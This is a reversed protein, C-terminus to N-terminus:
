LWRLKFLMADKPEEFWFAVVYLDPTPMTSWRKTSNEGCWAIAETYRNVYNIYSDRGVNKYPILELEITEKCIDWEPSKWYPIFNKLRGRNLSVEEPQLRMIRHYSPHDYGDWERLILWEEDVGEKNRYTKTEISRMAM